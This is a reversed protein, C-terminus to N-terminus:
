VYFATVIDHYLTNKLPNNFDVYYNSLKSIFKVGSYWLQLGVVRDDGYISALHLREKNPIFPLMKERSGLPYFMRSPMALCDLNCEKFSYTLVKADTVSWFEDNYTEYYQSARRNIVQMLKSKSPVRLVGGSIIGGNRFVAFTDDGPYKRLCFQDADVYTVNDIASLVKYKFLDAFPGYTGLVSHPEIEFDIDWFERANVNEVGSPLNRVPTYSFVIYRYGQMLFSNAACYHLLTYDPGHWFTFVVNSFMEPPKVGYNHTANVWVVKEKM